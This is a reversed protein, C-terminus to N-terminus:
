KCKWYALGIFPLVIYTLTQSYFWWWCKKCAFKFYKIIIHVISVLGQMHGNLLYKVELAYTINSKNIQFVLRIPDM